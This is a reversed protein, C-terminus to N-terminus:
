PSRDSTFRDAVVAEYNRLEHMLAGEANQSDLLRREMSAMESRSVGISRCLGFMVWILVPFREVLLKGSYKRWASNIPLGQM